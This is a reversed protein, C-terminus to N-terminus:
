VHSIVCECTRCSEIMDTVPNMCIRSMVCKYTHCSANMNTSTVGVVFGCEAGCEHTYCTENIDIIYSTNIRMRTVDPMGMHPMVCEYRHCSANMHTCTVVCRHIGVEGGFYHSLLPLSSPLLPLTLPLPTPLPPPALSPPPPPPSLSLLNQTRNSDYSIDRDPSEPRLAYVDNQFFCVIQNM